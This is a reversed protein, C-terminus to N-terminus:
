LNLELQDPNYFIDDLLETMTEVIQRALWESTKKEEEDDDDGYDEGYSFQRSLSWSNHDRVESMGLDGGDEDGTAFANMAYILEQTTGFFIINGEEIKIDIWPVACQYDKIMQDLVDDADRKTQYQLRGWINDFPEPYQKKLEEGANDVDVGIRIAIRKAIKPNEEFFVSIDKKEIWEYENDFDLNTLDVIGAMDKINNDRIFRDIDESELVVIKNENTFEYIPPFRDHDLMRLLRAIVKDALGFRSYMDSLNELDPKENILKIRMDEPLDYISFNNEPKYGGGRIGEIRDDRLLMIIMPWYKEVPKENAKGKMETLMGDDALIFTLHPEWRVEDGSTKIRKRLSLLHDGTNERGANGCHGMANRELECYAKETDVWYWDDGCNIIVKCDPDVLTGELTKKWEDEYRSFTAMLGRYTQNTFRTTQIDHIPLSLYHKLMLISGQPGEVFDDSVVHLGIKDTYDQSIQKMREPDLVGSWGQIVTMRVMRLYWIIRDYKKLVSKALNVANKWQTTIKPIFKQGDPTLAAIIPKIMEDFDATSGEFLRMLSKQKPHDTMIDIFNRM